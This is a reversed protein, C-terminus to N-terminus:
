KPIVVPNVFDQYTIIVMLLILAFFSISILYNEVKQPIRKRLFLEPLVLLIRGGDLAPIPLLNTLGLAISITAIFSLRFIPAAQTASSTSEADMEGAATYMDYIGKIGVVRSEDTSITGAILRGPLLIFERMQDYAATFATSIAEIISIKIYPNTLVVGLAGQNEPPNVRPVATFVLKESGRTVTIQVEQGLHGKVAAQMSEITDVPLGNIEIILDGTQLGSQMAPSQPAIEAIIVKSTDPAGLRYFLIVLLILGLLLNMVPGGLYVGLKKVPTSNALGGEVNRDVEGRPRVFAGFPLANLTFDTGKWTFLKVIRPPLGIGYEEVPIKAIRCMIFHGTEHVLLLAAFVLIFQIITWLLDM